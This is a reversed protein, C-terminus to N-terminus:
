TPRSATASAGLPPRNNFTLANESWAQNVPFVDFSGPSTVADVYLRLVAKRVNAGAPIGSFNFRLYSTMTPAVQLAVDSGFNRGADARNASVWADANPPALQAEVPLPAALFVYSFAGMLSRKLYRATRSSM